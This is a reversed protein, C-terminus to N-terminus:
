GCDRYSSVMCRHARQQADSLASSTLTEAVSDRKRKALDSGNASAINFWMHAMIANQPEGHGNQYMSGLSVQASVHGQKAAM